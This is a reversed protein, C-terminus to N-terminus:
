KIKFLKSSNEGMVFAKDEPTLSSMNNIKSVIDYQGMDYPFDTGLLVNRSGMTNVLYSLAHNSHTITDSYMLKLYESPHKSINSKPEHRVDFAHDFRGIQYPLFGAGHVWCFKLGPFKDLIGGFIICAAALTTELPNGIVNGLYYRQTRESATNNTPHVIIPIGLKWAKEYFPWLEMSDLNRGAVNSGIEVSTFSLDKVARDLEDVSKHVDQLPVAASGIFRDPYGRVIEAIADNQAAALAGAVDTPLDYCFNGPTISLVQMDIGEDDMLKIRKIPDYFHEMPDMPSSERGDIMTVYRGKADIVLRPVQSKYKRELKTIAENTYIHAHMDVIM